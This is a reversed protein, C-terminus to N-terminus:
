GQALDDVAWAFEDIRNLEIPGIRSSGPATTLAGM